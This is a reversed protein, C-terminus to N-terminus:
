DYIHTSETEMVPTTTQDSTMEVRFRTDGTGVGKITLKFVARAKPALSAIPAFKISKGSVTADTPGTTSVHEQEAPLTCAIVINTAPATGQNTVTITYTTNSNLEIPDPSDVCELLIAPIGKVALQCTASAAACWTVEATNNIIGIQNCMFSSKLVRSQGAELSGLRWVINNGQRTGQNDASVYQIAGAITDTVVVNLATADGQNTVTIEFNANRGLYRLNPCTKTIRVDPGAVAAPVSALLGACLLGSLSLGCVRKM